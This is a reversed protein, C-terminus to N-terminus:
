PFSFVVYMVLDVTEDVQMESAGCPSVYMKTPTLMSHQVFRRPSVSAPFVNKTCAPGALLVPAHLLPRESTRGLSLSGGGRLSKSRSGRAGCAVPIRM